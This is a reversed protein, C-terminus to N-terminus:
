PMDLKIITVKLTQKNSCKFSGQQISREEAHMWHKQRGIAYFQHSKTKFITYSSSGLSRTLTSKSNWFAISAPMSICTHQVGAGKKNSGRLILLFTRLNDCVPFPFSFTVDNREILTKNNTQRPIFYNFPTFETWNTASKGCVNLVPLLYIFKKYHNTFHNERASKNSNSSFSDIQNYKEM